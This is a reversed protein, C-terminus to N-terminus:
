TKIIKSQNPYLFIYFAQMNFNMYSFGFSLYFVPSFIVIWFIALSRIKWYIKLYRLLLVLLGIKFPYLSYFFLQCFFIFIAGLHYSIDSM